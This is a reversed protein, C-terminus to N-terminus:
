KKFLFEYWKKTKTKINENELPRLLYEYSKYYYHNNLKSPNYDNVVVGLVNAGIRKFQAIVQLALGLKATGPRIVLLIGDVFPLLVSADTVALVPPTDILVFDSCYNFVKIISHMKETGLLESPNSPLNGSTVASLNEVQTAQLLGNALLKSEDLEFVDSLGFDNKLGLIKHITSKRLDADILTVKKGNQALVVGLNSIVTSKGDGEMISTVLITRIPLGQQTTAYLLNTRLNRFAESIPSRPMFETIPADLNNKYRSIIGLVPVDLNNAIDEPTKLTDDRVAIFLITGAAIVLGLIVAIVTYLFTLPQKPNKPIRAPEVQVITSSTQSESLQVQELSQLLNTYTQKYFDLKASLQVKEEANDDVYVLKSTELIKNEVDTIQDQLTKKTEAFQNALVSQYDKSFDTTLESLSIQEYSQLLSSHTQKLLELKATLEVKEEADDNLAILQSTELIQKEIDSVRSQLNTKSTEFRASQIEQLNESFVTVIENAINAALEPDTSEATINILQTNAVSEASVTHPDIEEIDLRKSAEILIPSKIIMQSYTLSLESNLLLSSYDLSNESTVENVLVTTNAEYVPTIKGCVFFAVAGAVVGALVVLWAWHWLTTLLEDLDITELTNDKSGM